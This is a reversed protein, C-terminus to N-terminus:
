KSLGLLRAVHDRCVIWDDGCDSFAIFGMPADASLRVRLSRDTPGHNPGPCLVHGGGVEGGLAVAMSRLDGIM